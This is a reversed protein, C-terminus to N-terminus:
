AAYASCRVTEYPVTSHRVAGHRSAVRRIRVHVKLSQLTRCALAGAADHGLRRSCTGVSYPLTEHVLHRPRLICHVIAKNRVTRGPRMLGDTQM